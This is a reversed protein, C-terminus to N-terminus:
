APNLRIIGFTMKKIRKPTMLELTKLGYDWYTFVVASDVQRIDYLIIFHTPARLTFIRFKSPRLYKSNVYLVVTGKSLQDRLHTVIDKVGPRILDTGKAEVKYNGLAKAMKNFKGLTCAAWILNEDGPKYKKDLNMYSKFHDPLSMLWLQDAPNIGLKGKGLLVGANERVSASPKILHGNVNTEGEQYLELVHKVYNEPQQRCLVVTIASYGCFNTNHGQYVKEPALVNTRVNEYLSLPSIHPWYSSSSTIDFRDLLELAQQQGKTLEKKERTEQGSAGAVLCIWFFSLLVKKAM